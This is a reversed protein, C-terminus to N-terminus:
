EKAIYPLYITVTPEVTQPDSINPYFGSGYVGEGYGFEDNSQARATGPAVALTSLLTSAVAVNRAQIFFQRRSLTKM